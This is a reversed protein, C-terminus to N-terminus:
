TLEKNVKQNLSCKYTCYVRITIFWLQVMVHINVFISNILCKNLKNMLLISM